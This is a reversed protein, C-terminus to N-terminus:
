RIHRYAPFFTTPKNHSNNSLKTYTITDFIRGCLYTDRTGTAWGRKFRTLGDDENAEIGAGAGLNLWKLGKASFYTIAEWFLAYSARLTYGEESYAALHYYVVDGQIYWIIIGIIEDQYMARFMVIGPVQLQRAFASTFQAIGTISHRAVLKNYLNMWATLYQIPQECHEVGVKASAKAINRSHHSSIFTKPAQSLDIVFHPKYLRMHDPFCNRLEGETYDGFPDTVVVLSILDRDIANLDLSLRSWDVCTFLPYCGMADIGLVTGDETIPRKVIFGQCNPLFYPTGYNSLSKAYLPHLYGTIDM